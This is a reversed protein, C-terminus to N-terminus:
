NIYWYVAHYHSYAGAVVFVHFIAHNFPIRKIQYLIAGVTYFVGGIALWTLAEKSLADLLSKSAIIVVWGLAVYSITSLLRFRGTFFLKLIIGAIALGWVGAMVLYAFPTAIGLVIFPLYSGAIMLYIACHDFVKLKRRRNPDKESHYLTSATFLTIICVGYIAYITFHLPSNAKVLLLILSIIGAVIGTLHSYINIKEELPSYTTTKHQM